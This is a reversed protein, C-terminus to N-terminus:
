AAVSEVTSEATATSETALDGTAAESSVIEGEGTETSSVDHGYLVSKFTANADSMYGTLINMTYDDMIILWKADRQELKMTMETTVTPVGASNVGEVVAKVLKEKLEIDTIENGSLADSEISKMVNNLAQDYVKRIDVTTVRVNVGYPNETEASGIIEINLTKAVADVIKKTGLSDRDDFSLGDYDAVYSFATRYQKKAFAAAFKEVADEPSSAVSACACLSIMLSVLVFIATIRRLQM